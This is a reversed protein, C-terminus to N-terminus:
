PLSTPRLYKPTILTVPLFPPTISDSHTDSPLSLFGFPHIVHNFTVSATLAVM